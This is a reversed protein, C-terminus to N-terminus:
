NALQELVLKGIHEVKHPGFGYVKELESLSQPRKKALERLTKNSFVIFAPIDNEDAYEKRWERLVEYVLEEDKTLPGDELPKKTKVSSKTKTKSKTTSSAFIEVDPTPIKRESRPSCIDCHGCKKIRFADKFYSLIGAHRCEGGEAYQTITDLALWRRNIIFSEAESKQIFYAHLGKDKKSYLLLCTSDKEDRGARGMEQYYSEVNAPMQHHIVLRVDPYDMGMGFANTAALIRIEESEYKTQVELRDEDTMGAHYYGVNSFSSSLDASLEECLARTGCYILIRGEPFQLLAQKVWNNKEKENACNEVQYYLNSRYFGYVHRDPVKLKLQKSIDKLVEPTATATLALIPVEPKLSRLLSLQYYEKRFDPGWQSVCHAEDIAFLSVPAKKVWDAFGEKQVREPSLYLIFSKETRMSEFIKKRAPLSQGSHLCGSAIGKANLQRTQDEMLAILPSVVIVIGPRLVAPLQYCLSKGRGTPMVAMTDKGSFVSKLIAEQGERFKSFQFRTQLVQKLDLHDLTAEVIICVMVILDLISTLPLANVLCSTFLTANKNEISASSRSFILDSLFNSCWALCSSRLISRM